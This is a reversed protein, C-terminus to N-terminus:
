TNSCSSSPILWDCLHATVEVSVECLGPLVRGCGILSLTHYTVVGPVFM